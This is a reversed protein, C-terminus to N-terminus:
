LIKIFKSIYIKYNDSIMINYIGAPLASVDVRDAEDTRRVIKGTIDVIEITRGDIYGPLEIYDNAPNPHVAIREIDRRISTVYKKPDYIWLERKEM